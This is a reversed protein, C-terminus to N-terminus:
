CENDAGRSGCASQLLFLPLRGGGCRGSKQQNEIELGWRKGCRAVGFKGAVAGCHHGIILSNFMPRIGIKGDNPNRHL